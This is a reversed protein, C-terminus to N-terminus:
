NQDGAVLQRLEYHVAAVSMLKTGNSFVHVVAEACTKVLQKRVIRYSGKEDNRSRNHPARDAGRERDNAVDCM